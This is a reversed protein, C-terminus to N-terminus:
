FGGKKEAMEMVTPYFYESEDEGLYLRFGESTDGEICVTHNSSTNWKWSMFTTHAVRTNLDVLNEIYLRQKSEKGSSFADLTKLDVHYEFEPIAQTLSLFTDFNTLEFEKRLRSVFERVEEITKFTKLKNM